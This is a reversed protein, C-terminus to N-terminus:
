IASEERSKAELPRKKKKQVQTNYIKWNKKGWSAISVRRNLPCLMLHGNRVLWLLSKGWKKMTLSLGERRTREVSFKKIRAKKPYKDANLIMQHIQIMTNGQSKQTVRTTQTLWTTKLKPSSKAMNVTIARAIMSKKPTLIKSQRRFLLHRTLCWKNSRFIMKLHHGQTVGAWFIMTRIM